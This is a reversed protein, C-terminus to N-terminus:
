PAPEPLSPPPDSPVPLGSLAPDKAAADPTAHAPAKPAERPRSEPVVAPASSPAPAPAPAPSPLPSVEGAPTGPGTAPPVPAATAPSEAPRPREVPPAPSPAGDPPAIGSPFSPPEPEGQDLTSAPPLGSGAQAPDPAPPAERALMGIAVVGATAVLVFGVVIAAARREGARARPRAVRRTTPSKASSPTPISPRVLVGSSLNAGLSQRFAIPLEGARIRELEERLERAHQYRERPARAMARAIVASLSPSVGPHAQRADPTPGNIVQSVVAFISGGSFPPQGTCLEFLTAGLSYVDSRIDLDREGRAQEPSMFTPTGIPAGTHTMREDGDRSRALGLDGLKASGGRDIAGNIFINAPKIDRHILGAAEVAELGRACDIGVRLADSEALRGGARKAQHAADGGEVLELAMYLLGQDRGADYCAVVNPHNIRGAVRAERMFREVFQPDRALFPNMVKLAVERKMTMQVARYVAGMGGAGLKDLIHYGGVLEPPEASGVEATLQAADEWTISGSQVLLDAVSVTADARSLAESAVQAGVLGRAVARETFAKDLHEAM